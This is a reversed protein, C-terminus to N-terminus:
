REKAAFIFDSYVTQATGTALLGYTLGNATPTWPNIIAGNYVSQFAAVAGLPGPAANVNNVGTWASAPQWGFLSFGFFAYVNQLRDMYFGFDIWQANAYPIATLAAAPIPVSWLLTSANYAALAVTTANTFIFFLGDTPLATTTAAPMLGAYVTTGVITTINIRSFFFLKKSPFLTATLGTGTYTAPPLFFNNRGGIVGATGAGSTSSTLLLQGGDGATLAAAAGTGSTVTAFNGNSAITEFFDDYLVQYDFPNPLGFNAMPGWQYDTSVGNPFRAPAQSPTTM